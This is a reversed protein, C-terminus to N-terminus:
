TSSLRVKERVSKARNNGYYSQKSRRRMVSRSANADGMKNEEQSESGASSFKLQLKLVKVSIPSNSDYAENLEDWFDCPEAKVLNSVFTYGEEYAIWVDERDDVLVALSNDCPIIRQIKREIM